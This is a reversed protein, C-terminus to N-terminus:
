RRSRRRWALAGAGLLWLAATSPEPVPTALYLGVVNPDLVSNGNIRIGTAGAIAAYDSVGLDALSFSVGGLKQAYNTNQNQTYTLTALATNTTNAPSNTFQSALVNLSFSGVQNNNADILTVSFNDGVTSAVPTTDIVFFRTTANFPAQGGFQFLGTSMNNVGDTAILGSTVAARGAADNTSPAFSGNSPTGSLNYGLSQNANASGVSGAEAGFLTSFSGETTSLGNISAIGTLNPPSGAAFSGSFSASTLPLVAAQAAAPLALAALLLRSLKTNM